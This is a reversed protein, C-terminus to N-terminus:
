GAGVRTGNAVDEAVRAGLGRPAVRADVELHLTLGNLRVRRDSGTVLRGHGGPATIRVDQCLEFFKPPAVTIHLRGARLPPRAALWVLTVPCAESQHTQGPTIWGFPHFCGARPRQGDTGARVTADLGNQFRTEVALRKFLLLGGARVLDQMGVHTTGGVVRLHAM